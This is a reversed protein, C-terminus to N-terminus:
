AAAAGLGIARAIEAAPMAGSVRKAEHGGKFFVMTPISRIQFRAAVEQLADVDVKAVVLKGASSGALKAIEPAIAHCPGCWAAWFDVLVPLPSSKVLEDFDAASGIPIPKTVPSIPTKCAGCRANDRLRSAPVRNATSCNPCTLIM